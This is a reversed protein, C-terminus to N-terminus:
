VIITKAPLWCAKLKIAPMTGFSIREAWLCLLVKCSMNFDNPGPCYLFPLLFTWGTFDPNCGFKFKQMWNCQTAFILYDCKVDQKYVM